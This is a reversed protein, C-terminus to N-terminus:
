YKRSWEKEREVERKTHKHKPILVGNIDKNPLDYQKGIKADCNRCFVSTPGVIRTIDNNKSDSNDNNNDKDSVGTWLGM